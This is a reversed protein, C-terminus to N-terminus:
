VLVLDRRILIPTFGNVPYEFLRPLGPLLSGLTVVRLFLQLGSRLGINFLPLLHGLEDVFAELILQLVHADDPLDSLQQPESKILTSSTTSPTPWTKTM